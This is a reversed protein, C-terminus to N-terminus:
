SADVAMRPAEAALRAALGIPQQGHQALASHVLEEWRRAFSDPDNAAAIMRSGAVAARRFLDRHGDPDSLISLLERESEIRLPYGEVDMAEFTIANGIVPAGHGFAELVKTKIGGPLYSPTLLVSGSDYIEDITRAYGAMHVNEPVAIKRHQQGYIVLPSTLRHRRWLSVLADITLQNQRLVDSGVFVFRLAGSAFDLPGRRIPAPPAIGVVKAGIKTQETLVRADERSLLVSYDSMAVIETEAERLNKAEYRLLARSLRHSRLLRECIPPLRRKMYGTSPPEGIDLLLQMRRSMLDDLDTVIALDPRTRRLRRLLVLCRVGDVYLVKAQPPIRSIVRDVEATDAFLLCQLPLPRGRLLGLAFRGGMAFVAFASRRGLVTEIRDESAIFRSGLVKRISRAMKLRGFDHDADIDRTWIFHLSPARGTAPENALDLESVIKM